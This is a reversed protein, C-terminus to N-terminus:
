PPLVEYLQVTHGNWQTDAALRLRRDHRVADMLERCNEYNLGCNVSVYTVGRRRLENISRTDPFFAMEERFKAYSNPIFGSYGNVMRTWHWLSFYMFPLNGVEDDLLPTEAIVVNPTYKLVEYISPPEKWVPGITLAPWADVLVFAILVFFAARQYTRSSRWALIRRVGFGALVALTLAVLAAFRAPVRLGRVPSLWRYLLPYTVGNLGLTGDFSLLLGATYILPIGGLPPVIGVTSLIFPAAGPFMTREPAPRHLVKRWLISYRNVRLYDAPVASYFRV